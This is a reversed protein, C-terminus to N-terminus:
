VYKAANCLSLLDNLEMICESIPAGEQGDLEGDGDEDDPDETEEGEPIEPPEPPEQHDPLRDFDPWEDKGEDTLSFSVSAGGPLTAGNVTDPGVPTLPDILTSGIKVIMDGCAENDKLNGNNRGVVRGALNAGAGPMSTSARVDDNMAISNSVMGTVGNTGAIGGAVATFAYSEITGGVVACQNITGNNTGAIGGVSSTGNININRLTLNEVKGGAGIVAFLGQTQGTVNSFDIVHGAGDFEGTFTGPITLGAGAAITINATLGYSGTIPHSANNGISRLDAESTIPIIKETEWPKHDSEGALYNHSALVRAFITYTTEPDLNTFAKEEQWGNEPPSSVDGEAIAFEIKQETNSLTDYTVTLSNWTPTISLIKADAGKAQVVNVVAGTGTFPSNTLNYNIGAAGTLTVTVSVPRSGVTHTGGTIAASVTYTVDTGAIQGTFAPTVSAPAVTASNDFTKDTIAVSQISIDKKGITGNSFSPAATPAIYKWADDGTIGWTGGVNITKGSGADANSFAVTGNTVTVTESGSVLGNTGGAALTPQAAVSATTNGDYTKTNVTGAADWNLQRPSITFQASPASTGAHTVSNLTATVTYTGPDTPPTESIYLTSEPDSLTGSYIFTFDTGDDSAAVPATLTGGFTIDTPVTPLTVIAVEKNTISV